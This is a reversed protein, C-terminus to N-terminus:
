DEKSRAIKESIKESKKITPSELESALAMMVPLLHVSTDDM